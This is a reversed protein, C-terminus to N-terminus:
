LQFVTTKVNTVGVIWRTPMRLVLVALTTAGRSNKACTFDDVGLFM